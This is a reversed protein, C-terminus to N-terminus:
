NFSRIDPKIAMTLFSDRRPRGVHVSGDGGRTMAPTFMGGLMVFEGQPFNVLGTVFGSFLFQFFRDM